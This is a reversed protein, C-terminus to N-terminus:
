KPSDELSAKKTTPLELAARKAWKLFKALHRRKFNKLHTGPYLKLLEQFAVHDLKSAAKSTREEKTKTDWIARENMGKARKLAKWKAEYGM